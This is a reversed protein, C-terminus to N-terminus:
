KAHCEDNTYWGMIVRSMSVKVCNYDPDTGSTIRITRLGSMLGRHKFTIKNGIGNRRLSYAVTKPFGPLMEDGADYEGSENTDEVLSYTRENLVAYHERGREMARMRAHMMDAYLEKTTREVAYRDAWDRYTFGASAVLIGTISIVVVLEILTVGRDKMQGGKEGSHRPSADGRERWSTIVSEGFFIV